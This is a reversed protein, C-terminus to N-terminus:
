MLIPEIEKWASIRSIADRDNIYSSFPDFLLSPVIDGMKVIESKSDDIFLIKRGPMDKVFDHKSWSSIEGGVFEFVCCIGRICGSVHKELLFKTTDLSNKPRATVVWLNYSKSLRRVVECMDPFPQIKDQWEYSMHFNHLVNFWVEYNSGQFDPRYKKIVFYPAQNDIYDDPQSKIDYFSNMFEVYVPLYNIMTGDLDFFINSKM